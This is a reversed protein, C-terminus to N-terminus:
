RSEKLIEPLFFELDSVKVYRRGGIKSAKLKGTFVWSRITAEPFSPRGLAKAVMDAAEKLTLM